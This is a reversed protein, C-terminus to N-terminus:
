KTKKRNFFEDLVTLVNSNGNGVSNFDCCNLKDAIENVKGIRSYKKAEITKMSQNITKGLFVNEIDFKFWILKFNNKNCYNVIDHNILFTPKDYTDIDICMFVYAGNGNYKEISKQIQKEKQNYNNKGNMYIAEFKHGLSRADYIEDLVKLIYLYDSDNKEKESEVVFIFKYRKENM